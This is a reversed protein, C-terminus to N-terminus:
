KPTEGEGGGPTGARKEIRLVAADHLAGIRDANEKSMDPHNRRVQLCLRVTAADDGRLAALEVEQRDLSEEWGSGTGTSARAEKLLAAASDPRRNEIQWKVTTVRVHPLLRSKTHRTMFDAVASEFKEPENGNALLGLSALEDVGELAARAWSKFTGRLSARAEEITVGFAERFSGRPDAELSAPSMAFRRVADRGKTRELHRFLFWGLLRQDREPLAAWDSRPSLRDWSDLATQMGFRSSVEALYWDWLRDEGEEEAWHALGEELWGPPSTFWRNAHRSAHALEHTLVEVSRLKGSLVASAKLDISSVWGDGVRWASTEAWSEGDFLEDRLFAVVRPLPLEPSGLRRRLRAAALPLQARVIQLEASLRPDGDFKGRYDPVVEFAPGRRALMRLKLVLRHGSDQPNLSCLTDLLAVVEDTRGLRLLPFCKALTVSRRWYDIGSWKPDVVQECALAAALAEEARGLRFASESSILHMWASDGATLSVRGDHADALVARAGDAAQQWRLAEYEALVSEVNWAASVVSEGPSKVPPTAPVEQGDSDKPIGLLTIAILFPSLLVRRSGLALGCRAGAFLPRPWQDAFSAAAPHSAM